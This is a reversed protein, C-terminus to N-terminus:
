TQIIALAYVTVLVAVLVVADPAIVHVSVAVIALANV